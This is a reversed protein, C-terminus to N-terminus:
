AIKGHQEKTGRVINYRLEWEIFQWLDIGKQHTYDLLIELFDHAWFDYYQLLRLQLQFADRLFNDTCKVANFHGKVDEDLHGMWDLCRIACGAFEAEFTDKIFRGYLYKYNKDHLSASQFEQVQAYRQRRWAEICENLETNALVICEIVTRETDWYGNAKNISYVLSALEKYDGQKAQEIAPKIKDQM